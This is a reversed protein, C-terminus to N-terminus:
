ILGVPMVLIDWYNKKGLTSAVVRVAFQGAQGVAKDGGGQESVGGVNAVKQEELM